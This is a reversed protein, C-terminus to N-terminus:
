DWGIGDAQVGTPPSTTVTTGGDWGIGSASAAHVVVGASYAIGSTGGLAIVACALSILFRTSLLM